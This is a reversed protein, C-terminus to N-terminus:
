RNLKLAVPMGKKVVLWKLVAGVIMEIIGKFLLGEADEDLGPIDILANIIDTAVQEVTEIDNDMLANALESLKTKIEVSLKDAYTDDLFTILIKFLYGDIFEFLGSVKIASDLIESLKKEQVTTLIGKEAMIQKNFILYNLETPSYLKEEQSDLLRVKIKLAGFGNSKIVVGYGDVTKVVKM